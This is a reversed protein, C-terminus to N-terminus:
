IVTGLRLALGALKSYLLYLYDKGFGANISSKHPFYINNNEQAMFNPSTKNCILLYSSCM